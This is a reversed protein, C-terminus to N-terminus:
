NGPGVGEDVYIVRRGSMIVGNMMERVHTQMGGSTGCLTLRPRGKDVDQTPGPIIGWLNFCNFYFTVLM